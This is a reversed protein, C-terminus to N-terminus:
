RKWALIGMIGKERRLKNIRTIRAYNDVIVGMKSVVFSWNTSYNIHDYKLRHEWLNINIIQYLMSYNKILKLVDKVMKHLGYTYSM